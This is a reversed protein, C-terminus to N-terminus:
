KGSRRQNTVQNVFEYADECEELSVKNKRIHEVLKRAMISYQGGSSNSGTKEFLAQEIQAASEGPNKVPINGQSQEGVDSDGTSGGM